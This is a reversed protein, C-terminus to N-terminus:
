ISPSFSVRALAVRISLISFCLSVRSLRSPSRIATSTPWTLNPLGDTQYEVPYVGRETATRNCGVVALSAVTLVILLYSGGTRARGPASLSQFRWPKFSAM